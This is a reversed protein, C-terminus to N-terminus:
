RAPFLRILRADIQGQDNPTGFVAAQNDAHIDALSGQERGVRIVTSTSVLVNQEVNDKGQVVLTSGSVSLIKGFVGHGRYHVKREGVHVGASFAGLLLVLAGLAVLITLIVKSKILEIM